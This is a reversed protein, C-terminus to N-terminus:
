RLEFTGEETCKGRWEALLVATLVAGCGGMYTGIKVGGWDGTKRAITYIADETYVTIFDGDIEYKGTIRM